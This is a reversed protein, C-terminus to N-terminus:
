RLHGLLQDAREQDQTKAIEAYAFAFFRPRSPLFTKDRVTLSLFSRMLSSGLRAVGDAAQRLIEDCALHDAEMLLDHLKDYVQDTAEDNKGIKVLSYVGELFSTANAANSKELMEGPMDIVATDIETLSSNPRTPTKLGSAM